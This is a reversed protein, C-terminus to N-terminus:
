KTHQMNYMSFMLMIDTYTCSLAALKATFEVLHPILVLMEFTSM